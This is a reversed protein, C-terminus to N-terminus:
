RLTVLVPVTGLGEARQGLAQGITAGLAAVKASAKMAYGAHPSTTLLDGPQIAGILALALVLIGAYLLVFYTRNM